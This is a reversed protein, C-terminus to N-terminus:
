NSIFVDEAELEYELLTFSPRWSCSSVVALPFFRVLDFIM